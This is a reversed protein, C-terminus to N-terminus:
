ILGSLLAKDSQLIKSIGRMSDAREKSIRRRSIRAAAATPKANPVDDNSAM